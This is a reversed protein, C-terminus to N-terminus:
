QYLFQELIRTLLRILNFVFVYQIDCVTHPMCLIDIHDHISAHSRRIHNYFQLYQLFSKKIVRKLLLNVVQIYM